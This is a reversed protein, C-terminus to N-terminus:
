ALNLSKIKDKKNKRKQGRSYTPTQTHCNPCLLRLNEIRWDFSDGNIHDLHLVLPKGNWEPLLGCEKCVYPLINAKIVRMKLHSHNKTSDKVLLEELPIMNSRNREVMAHYHKGATSTVLGKPM